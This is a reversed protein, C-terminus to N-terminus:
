DEGAEGDLGALSAEMAPDYAVGYRAWMADAVAEARCAVGHREFYDAVRAVDRTLIRRAHRNVYPNVVQPFDILTIEGEWYLINYASLDGHIIQQKLMLEINELVVEWLAHAEDPEVDVEHLTPAGRADDGLYSMLLANDSAAYVRPVAAGVTALKKLSVYEYLLWSTHRVEQGFASKNHIARIVRADSKKVVRGGDTLIERGQRYLADNRLNRVAQPRYVKAALRESGTSPDALCRYVSAEKGGKVQALVDTILGQEVFTRLSQLLWRQEFRSPSYTTQFGAEIMDPDALAAVAARQDRRPGAQARPKRARRAARDILSEEIEAEYAAYRVFADTRNPDSM